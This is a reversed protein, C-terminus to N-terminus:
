TLHKQQCADCRTKIWSGNRVKGINGCFECVQLSGDEYERIVKDIDDNAWNVYFRLGGFKEKVQAVVPFVCDNGEFFVDLEFLKGYLDTLEESLQYVLDYWGDQISFDEDKNYLLPFNEILKQEKEPTM